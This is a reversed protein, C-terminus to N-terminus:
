QILDSTYLQQQKLHSVKQILNLHYSYLQIIHCTYLETLYASHLEILHSNYLQKVQSIHLHTVNCSHLKVTAQSPHLATTDSPATGPRTPLTVLEAIRPMLFSVTADAPFRPRMPPFNPCTLSDNQIRRHHIQDCRRFIKRRAQVRASTTDNGICDIIIFKTSDAYNRSHCM